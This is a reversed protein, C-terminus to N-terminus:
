IDGVSEMEELASLSSLLDAIRSARRQRPATCGLFLSLSGSAPSCPGPHPVPRWTSGFKDAHSMFHETQVSSYTIGALSVDLERMNDLSIIVVATKQKCFNTMSNIECFSFPTWYLTRALPQGSHTSGALQHHGPGPNWVRGGGGGEGGGQAGQQPWAQASAKQAGPASRSVPWVRQFPTKLAGVLGSHAPRAEAAPGRLGAPRQRPTREARPVPRGRVAGSLGPRTLVLARM